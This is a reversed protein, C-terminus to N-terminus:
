WYIWDLGPYGNKFRTVIDLHKCFNQVIGRLSNYDIGFAMDSMECIVKVLLEEQAESLVPKRGAGFSGVRGNLHNVITMRPVNFVKAAKYASFELNSFINKTQTQLNIDNM